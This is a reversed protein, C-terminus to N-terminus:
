RHGPCVAWVADTSTSFFDAALWDAHDRTFAIPVHVRDEVSDTLDLSNNDEMWLDHSMLTARSSFVLAAGALQPQCNSQSARAFSFAVLTVDALASGVGAHM